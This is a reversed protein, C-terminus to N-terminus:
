STGQPGRSRTDDSSASAEERGTNIPELTEPNYYLRDYVEFPRGFGQGGREGPIDLDFIDYISIYHGKEDEGKSIRANRMAMNSRWTWDDVNIRGNGEAIDLLMKLRETPKGRNPASSALLRNPAPPALLMDFLGNFRFYKANPDQSQTPRFPSEEITNFMQPQGLYMRWADESAPEMQTTAETSYKGRGRLSFPLGRTHMRLLDEISEPYDGPIIHKALLPNTFRRFDFNPDAEAPSGFRNAAAQLMGGLGQMAQAPVAQARQGLGFLFELLEPPM